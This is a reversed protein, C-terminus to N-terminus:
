WGPTDAPRIAIIAGLEDFFRKAQHSLQTKVLQDDLKPVDGIRLHFHLRCGGDGTPELRYAQRVEPRAGAPTELTVLRDQQYETITLTLHTQRGMVNDVELVQTSPGAPLSRSARIGIVDPQWWPYAPFDTIAAFVASAPYPYTVRYDLCAVGDDLDLMM